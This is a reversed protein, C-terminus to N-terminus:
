ENTEDKWGAAWHEFAAFTEVAASVIEASAGQVTSASGLSALCQRWVEGTRDGYGLFFERGATVGTGLLADLGRSLERGGLASGAVVYLAGLRRNPTYLYPIQTCSPINDFADVTVGLATLDSRLWGSRDNSLGARRQFPHYFGYLRRLLMEYSRKDVVGSKVADFGDHCHMRDHVDQTAKRLLCRVPERVALEQEGISPIGIAARSVNM